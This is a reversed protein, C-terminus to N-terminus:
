EIVIAAYSTLTPLQFITSGAESELPVTAPDPSDPSVVTAQASEAATEVTITLPGQTQLGAEPDYAHNILHVVHRGDALETVLAVVHETELAVAAEWPMAGVFLESHARYFEAEAAFWDLMGSEEATPDNSMSTRLHWAFRLGSAYAEAGYIRFYTQKEQLSFGYYASMMDTPWDVFLVVPVPGALAVSHERLRAFVDSLSRTADLRGESDTPVYDVQSGNPGDQNWNYLGVSQFDVFPFLGNSTILLERGYQERAYRRMRRVIDAWYIVNYTETFSAPVVPCRNNLTTGWAAVLAQEASSFASGGGFIDHELAYRRASFGSKECAPRNCDLTNDPGTDHAEAFSEPTWEPNTECLYRRFDAEHYDDFGENGDWASGSYGANAEDLFVGDAGVDILTQANRVVLDRFAPSALNGRYADPVIEDHAVPQNAVDRTVMDRFAAEDEVQSEFLVTATLGLIVRTGTAQLDQIAEISYDEPLTGDEGWQNTTRISVTPAVEYLQPDISPPASQSFAYAVLEPDPNAGRLEEDGRLDDLSVSPADVCDEGGGPNGAAGGSTSGTDQGGSGTAGNPAGSQGSSLGAGSGSNGCAACVLLGLSVATGVTSRGGLIPRRFISM